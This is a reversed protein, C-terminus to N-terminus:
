EPNAVEGDLRRRTVEIAWETSDILSQEGKGERIALAREFLELAQGYQAQDFHNKAAHQYVFHRYPDLAPDREAEAILEAFLRNSTEFEGRWQYTHALRLRNVFHAQRDNLQEALQVTQELTDRADDLRCLIRQYTGIAGMLRLRAATDLSNLQVQYDEIAQRMDGRNNPVDRLNRDFHYTLDYQLDDEV